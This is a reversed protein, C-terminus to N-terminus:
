FTRGTLPNIIRSPEKPLTLPDRTFAMTVIPADDSIPRGDSEAACIAYYSCASCSMPGMKVRRRPWMGSSGEFNQMLAIQVLEKQFATHQAETYTIWERRLYKESKQMSELTDASRKRGTETLLSRHGFGPPVDRAIMNYCMIPEEDFQALVGIPYVRTQIDLALFDLDQEVEGTTKHDIICLRGNKRALVDLTMRIRMVPQGNFGIILWMPEEVKLIEDWKDHRATEQYYFDWTDGMTVRQDPDLTITTPGYIPNPVVTTSSIIKHARACGQAESEGAQLARYYEQAALHFLTGWQLTEPVGKPVLGRVYRYMYKRDCRSWDALQSMSTDIGTFGAPAAALATPDIM